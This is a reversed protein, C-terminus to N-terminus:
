LTPGYSVSQFLLFTLLWTNQLDGEFQVSKYSEVLSQISSVPEEQKDKTKISYSINPKSDGKRLIKTDLEDSVYKGAELDDNHVSAQSKDDFKSAIKNTSEGEHGAFETINTINKAVHMSPEAEEAKIEVKDENLSNRLKVEKVKDKYPHLMMTADNEDSLKPDAAKYETDTKGDKRNRHLSDADLVGLEAKGYHTDM